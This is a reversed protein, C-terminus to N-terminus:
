FRPLMDLIRLGAHFGGADEKKTFVVVCSFLDMGGEVSPVELMVTGKDPVRFSCTVGFGKPSVDKITVPRRRGNLTLAGKKNAELRYFERSDDADEGDLEHRSKASLSAVQDVANFLVKMLAPDMGGRKARVILDNLADYLGQLDKIPDDRM